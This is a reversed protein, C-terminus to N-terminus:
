PSLLQCDSVYITLLMGDCDGRVVVDSGPPPPSQGPALWCRISFEGKGMELWPKPSGARSISSTVGSLVLTRYRFVDDADLEDEAYRAILDAADISISGDPNIRGPWVDDATITIQGAGNPTAGSAADPEEDSGPTAATTAETTADIPREAASLRSQRSVVPFLTALTLLGFLIPRLIKPAKPMVADELSAFFYKKVLGQASKELFGFIKRFVFDNKPSLTKKDM